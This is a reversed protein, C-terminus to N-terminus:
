TLLQVLLPWEEIRVRCILRPGQGDARMVLTNVFVGVLDELM